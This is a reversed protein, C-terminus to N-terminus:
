TWRQRKALALTPELSSLQRYYIVTRTKAIRACLLELGVRGDLRKSNNSGTMPGRIWMRLVVVAAALGAAAGAALLLM